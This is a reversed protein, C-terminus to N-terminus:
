GSFLVPVNTTRMVERTADTFLLDHLRGHGFAGMVILDAGGTQAEKVIQAGVTPQDQKRHWVDSTVGHRALMRALEHGETAEAETESAHRKITLVTTLDAEKLFGLANHAARSAERTPTWCLLIRRAPLADDSGKPLMLLPRGTAILLDHLQGIGVAQDETRPAGLIMLDSRLAMDSLKASISSQYASVERWETRDAVARTQAEFAAKTEEAVRDADTRLRNYLEINIAGAGGPYMEFLQKVHIGIMHGSFREAVSVASPVIEAVASPTPLVTLITKYPM